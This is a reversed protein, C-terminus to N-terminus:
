PVRQFGTVYYPTDGFCSTPVGRHEDYQLTVLEGSARLLAAAVSDNRVTFNFVGSQVTTGPIPAVSLEGEWTKCLWGRRVLKQVYGRKQTSAYAFNLSGWVWVGAGLIVVLLLLLLVKLGRRRRRKPLPTRGANQSPSLSASSASTAFTPDSSSPTGTM